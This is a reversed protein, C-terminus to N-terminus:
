QVEKPQISVEVRSKGPGNGPECSDSVRERINERSPCDAGFQHTKPLNSRSVRFGCPLPRPGRAANATDARSASPPFTRPSSRSEAGNEDQKAGRRGAPALHGPLDTRTEQCSTLLPQLIKM